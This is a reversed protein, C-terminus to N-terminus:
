NHCVGHHDAAELFLDLSYDVRVLREQGLDPIHVVLSVQLYDVRGMPQEHVRGSHEFGIEKLHEGM